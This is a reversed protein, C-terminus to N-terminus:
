DDLSDLHLSDFSQIGCSLNQGAPFAYCQIALSQATQLRVGTTTTPTSAWASGM